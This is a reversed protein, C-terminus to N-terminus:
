RERKRVTRVLAELAQLHAAAEPKEDYGDARSVALLQKRASDALQHFLESDFGTRDPPRLTALDRALEAYFTGLLLRHAHIRSSERHQELMAGVQDLGRAAGDELVFRNRFLAYALDLDTQEIERLILIEDYEGKSEERLRALAQQKLEIQVLYDNLREASTAQSVVEILRKLKEHREKAKPALPSEAQESVHAFADFAKRYDGLRTWAQARSFNVIDTDVGPNNREFYDLRALTARFVNQGSLDVPTGARYLDVNAYRRADALVLLLTEHSPVERVPTSTQCAGMFLATCISLIALFFRIVRLQPNM